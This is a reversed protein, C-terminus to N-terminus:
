KPINWGVQSMDTKTKLKYLLVCPCDPNTCGGYEKDLSMVFTDTRCMPCILEYSIYEGDVCIDFHIPKGLILEVKVKKSMMEVIVTTVVNAIKAIAHTLRNANVVDAIM